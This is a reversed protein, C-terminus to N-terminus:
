RSIDSSNHPANAQTVEATALQEHLDEIVMGTPEEKKNVKKKRTDQHGYVPPLQCHFPTTIEFLPNSPDLIVDADPLLM